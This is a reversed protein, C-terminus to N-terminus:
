PQSDLGAEIYKFITYDKPCDPHHFGMRLDGQSVDESDWGYSAHQPAKKFIFFRWM